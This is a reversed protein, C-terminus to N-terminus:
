HREAGRADISEAIQDTRRLAQSIFAALLYLKPRRITRARLALHQAQWQQALLPIFRIMLAAMLALQRRFNGLRDLPNLLLNLVDVMRQMPTTMTILDAFMVMVVMKVVAGAARDWDMLLGQFIGLGLILALLARLGFLRQRGPKGMASYALVLLPLLPLLYIWQQVFLLSLSALALAVLKLAAPIRHLWTDGSLYLSIM